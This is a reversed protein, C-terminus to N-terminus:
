SSVFVSIVFHCGRTFALLSTGSSVGSSQLEALKLGVMELEGHIFWRFLGFLSSSGECSGKFGGSGKFFGDVGEESLRTEAGVLFDGGELVEREFLDGDVLDKLTLSLETGHPFQHESLILSRFTDGLYFRFGIASDM